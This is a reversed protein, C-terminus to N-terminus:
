RPDAATCADPRNAWRRLLRRNAHFQRPDGGFALRYRYRGIQLQVDVTAPESALSQVLAAGNGTVQLMRGAKFVVSTIPGRRDRYRIGYGPNRPRLPRWREAPLTYTTQFADGGVATVGLTGGQALLDQVDTGNGLVLEPTDNSSVLFRRKGPRAPDAELM